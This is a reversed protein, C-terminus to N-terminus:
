FIKLYGLLPDWQRHVLGAERRRRKKKGRREEREGMRHLWTSGTLLSRRLHKPCNASIKKEEERERKEEKKKERMM